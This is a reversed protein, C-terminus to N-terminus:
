PTLTLNSRVQNKSLIKLGLNQQLKYAIEETKGKIEIKTTELVDSDILEECIPTCKITKSPRWWAGGEDLWEVPALKQFRKAGEKAAYRGAAETRLEEFRCCGRFDKRNGNRMHWESVSFKKRFKDDKPTGILRKWYVDAWWNSWDTSLDENVRGPSCVQKSTFVHWHVSGNKQFERVWVYDRIGKDRLRQLCLKMAYRHVHPPCLGHCLPTMTLTLMSRMRIDSNNLVFVLNRLSRISPVNGIKGRKTVTGACKPRWGKRLLIADVRYVEVRVKGRSKEREAWKKRKARMERHWDTQNDKM